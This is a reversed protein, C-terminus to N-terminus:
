LHPIKTGGTTARWCSKCAERHEEKQTTEERQGLLAFLGMNGSLFVKFLFVAMMAKNPLCRWPGVCYCFGLSTRAVERRGRSGCEPAEGARVLRPSYSLCRSGRKRM